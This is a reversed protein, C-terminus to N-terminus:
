IPRQTKGSLGASARVAELSAALAEPHAKMLEAYRWPSLGADCLLREFVEIGDAQRQLPESGVLDVVEAVSALLTM